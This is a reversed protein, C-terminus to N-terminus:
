FERGRDPLRNLARENDDNEFTLVPDENINNEGEFTFIPDDDSFATAPDYIDTRDEATYSTLDPEAATVEPTSKGIEIGREALIKRAVEAVKDPQKLEPNVSFRGDPAITGITQAKTKNDIKMSITQVGQRNPPNRNFKVGNINQNAIRVDSPKDGFEKRLVESELVELYDAVTPESSSNRDIADTAARAIESDPEVARDDNVLRDITMEINQPQSVEAPTRERRSVTPDQSRAFRQAYDQLKGLGMDDKSRLKALMNPDEFASYTIEGRDNTEFLKQNGYEITLNRAAEGHLTEGQKGALLDLIAQADDQSLSGTIFNNNADFGYLLEEQSKSTEQEQFATKPESEPETSAKKPRQTDSWPDEVIQAEVEEVVREATAAVGESDIIEAEIEPLENAAAAQREYDIAEAELKPSPRKSAETELSAVKTELDPDTTTRQRDIEKGAAYAIEPIKNLLGEDVGVWGVKGNKYSISDSEKGPEKIAIRGGKHKTIEYAKGDIEVNVRTIERDPLIRDLTEFGAKAMDQPKLEPMKNRTIRLNQTAQQLDAEPERRNRKVTTLDREKDRAWLKAGAVVTEMAARAGAQAGDNMVGAFQKNESLLDNM